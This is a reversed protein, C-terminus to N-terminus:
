AAEAPHRPQGGDGEVRYLLRVTTEQGASFVNTAVRVVDGVEPMTGDPFEATALGTLVDDRPEAGGTRSM